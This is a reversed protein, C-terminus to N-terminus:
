SLGRLCKSIVKKIRQPKLDLWSSTCRQLGTDVASNEPYPFDPVSHEPHTSQAAELLVLFVPPAVFLGNSSMGASHFDLAHNMLRSLSLFHENANERPNMCLKHRVFKGM